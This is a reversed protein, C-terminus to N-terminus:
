SKRDVDLIPASVGGFHVTVGAVQTQPAIVASAVGQLGPALGMGYITVLSCPSAVVPAQDFGAANVVATIVPGPPIVTLDFTQTYTTGGSAISATIVVPGSTAGATATVQALGQANTTATSASLTAPGSTVAFNVTAGPVPAANDNVLVILPNAFATGEKATQGSGSVTQLATIVSNVNVTFVVNVSSNNALAVTVQVPGATPKIYASVQGNSSSSASPNILTAAGATVSWTVPAQNSPDGGLDTVEAVLASTAEVGPNVNQNNGAIIKMIAPPGSNVTFATGGFNVFNGGVVIAYAGSGLQSGLTTWGPPRPQRNGLTSSKDSNGSPSGPIRVREGQHAHRGNPGIRRDASSGGWASGPYCLGSRGRFQYTHSDNRRIQRQYYPGVGGGYGSSLQFRLLIGPARVYLQGPRVLKHHIYEDGAPLRIADSDLYRHYESRAQRDCREGTGGATHVEPPQGYLGPM